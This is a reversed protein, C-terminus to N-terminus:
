GVYKSYAAWWNSAISQQAAALGVTGACVLAHLKNEIKDKIRAGESGRYPEPWLNAPETPSGGLELSILHDEEYDATAKDAFYAYSTALQQRKLATTYSSPPRVTKTYGTRCITSGIDSQTVRPDIAGPTTTNPLMVDAPKASSSTTVPPLAPVASARSGAPGSNPISGEGIVTAGGPQSVGKQAVGGHHSCTGSGESATWSGDKCISGAEAPTLFGVSVVLLAALALGVSRLEM